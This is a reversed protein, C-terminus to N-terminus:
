GLDPVEVDVGGLEEEICSAVFDAEADELDSRWSEYAGEFEICSAV